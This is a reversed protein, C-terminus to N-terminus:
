KQVNGAVVNPYLKPGKKYQGPKEQSRDIPIKNKKTEKTEETSPFNQRKRCERKLKPNKEETIHTSVSIIKRNSIPVGDAHINRSQVAM